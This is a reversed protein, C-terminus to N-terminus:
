DGRVTNSNKILIECTDRAFPRVYRGAAGAM